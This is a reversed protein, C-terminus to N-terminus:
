QVIRPLQHKGATEWVLIKHAHESVCFKCWDYIFILCLSTDSAALSVLAIIPSCMKMRRLSYTLVFWTHSAEGPQVQNWLLLASINVAHIRSCVCLSLCCTKKLQRWHLYLMSVHRSSCSGVLKGRPFFIGMVWQVPPQTPGLSLTSLTAFLSLNRTEAVGGRGVQRRPTRSVVNDRNMCNM